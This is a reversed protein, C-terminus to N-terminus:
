IEELIITIVASYTGADMASYDDVTVYVYGSRQITTNSTQVSSTFSSNTARKLLFGCSLVSTDVSSYRQTFTFGSSDNSMTTDDYKCVYDRFYTRNNGNGTYSSSTFYGGTGSVTSLSLNSSSLVTPNSATVTMTYPVIQSFDRTNKLATSVFKLKATTTSGGDLNWSLIQMRATGNSVNIQERNLSGVGALTATRTVTLVRETVTAPKEYYGSVVLTSDEAALSFLPLLLLMLPLLIRKKMM